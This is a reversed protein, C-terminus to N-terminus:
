KKLQDGADDLTKKEDESLAGFGDSNIKDLIRDVEAKMDARNTINVKFNTKKGVPATQKQQNFWKPPEISVGKWGEISDETAPRQLWKYFLFGALMGGLHASYAVTNGEGPPTASSLSPLESVIFMIGNWALIVFGIWKRRITFPVVFFLLLDIREEPDLMCFLILMGSAGSSAGVLSARPSNINLATWIAGGVFTSILFVALIQKSGISQELLRGVMFIIFLNVLIHLENGHFFGYSLLTWIKGEKLNDFSLNFWESTFNSVKLASGFSVAFFRELVFVGVCIGIIWLLYRVRGGSFENQM